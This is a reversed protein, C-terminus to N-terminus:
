AVESTDIMVTMSMVPTALTIADRGLVRRLHSLTSSLSHRAREEPQNGWFMEALYDRSLPRRSLAVVALLALKRRRASLSPDADGGANVLALRGLTLLRLEKSQLMNLSRHRTSVSTFTRTCNGRASFMALASSVRWYREPEGIRTM